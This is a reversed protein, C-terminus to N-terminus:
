NIGHVFLEDTSRRCLLVAFRIFILIQLFNYRSQTIKVVTFNGYNKGKGSKTEM